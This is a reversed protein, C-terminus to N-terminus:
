IKFNLFHETFRHTQLSLLSDKLPPKTLSDQHTYVHLSDWFNSVDIFFFLLLQDFANSAGAYHKAHSQDSASYPAGLQSAWFCSPNM